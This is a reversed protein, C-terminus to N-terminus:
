GAQRWPRSASRREVAPAGSHQEHDTRNAVKFVSVMHRLSDAQRTLARSAQATKEVMQINQQTNKDIELMAQHIQEIGTSQEESAHSIEEFVKNVREVSAIIDHLARSTDDVLQSGDSVKRLSDDILANIEKAAEASRQALERVENAVVAFGRGQDGAHAAEVSANLALLNTQFAIEDIVTTINAIRRSAEQIETMSETARRAAQGGQEALSLTKMSLQNASRTNETNQRVIGTIQELSAGTTEIHEAQVATRKSLQNNGQSIDNTTGHVHRATNAIEGLITNLKAVTQNASSKLQNFIGQYEADITQSLDGDALAGLVRQVDSIIRDSVDLLTNLQQALMATFEDKDELSVRQSLDGQGAQEVVSQIEKEVAVQRTRDLWEIVTGLRENREDFIPNASYRFCCGGLTIEGSVRGHMSQLAQPSLKPEFSLIEMSAGVLRDPSFGALQEQIPGLNANLMNLLAANAYIIQHRSDAIMVNTDVHDLAFQIRSARRAMERADMVDFGLKIQTAKVAQELQGIEDTRHSDLWEFYHGEAMRELTKSLRQIPDTILGKLAWGLLPIAIGATLMAAFLERLHFNGTLLTEFGINILLVGLLAAYLTHTVKANVIGTKLRALANPKLNAHGADIAQYLNSAQEIDGASPKSRVSLYGTIQGNETIPAINAKVWYYDGNKCRNKVIGTWPQGRKITDWLDKFAVTPMDPHRVINHNHGILEQRSYGCVETFEHNVYTIIGKLDTKSVLIAGDKIERENRTVPFNKKM